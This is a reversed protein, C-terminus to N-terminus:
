NVFTITSAEIKLQNIRGVRVGVAVAMAVSCGVAVAVMWGVAVGCTDAGDLGTITTLEPTDPPFLLACLAGSGGLMGDRGSTEDATAAM